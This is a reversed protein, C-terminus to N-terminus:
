VNFQNIFSVVALKHTPNSINPLLGWLADIAGDDSTDGFDKVNALPALDYVVRHAGVSGRVSALLKNNSEDKVNQRLFIVFDFEKTLLSSQVPSIYKGAVACGPSGFRGIDGPGESVFCFRAGKSNNNNWRVAQDYGMLMSNREVSYGTKYKSPDWPYQTTDLQCIWKGNVRQEVAQWQNTYPHLYYKIDGVVHDIIRAQWGVQAGGVDAYFILRNQPTNRFGGCLKKHFRHLEESDPAEQYCFALRFQETLRALNFSRQQLYMRAPHAEPLALIATTLGPHDPITRGNEDIIVCRRTVVKMATQTQASPARTSIPDFRTLLRNLTFGEEHKMCNACREFTADMRALRFKGLGYYKSLNVALHRKYLESEGHTQLCVPCPIYLHIGNSENSITGAGHMLSLKSILDAAEPPLETPGTM